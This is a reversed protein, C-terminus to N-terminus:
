YQTRPNGPHDLHPRPDSVATATPRRCRTWPAVESGDVGLQALLRATPVLLRRGIRITPIEGRQAADYATARSIGLVQGAEPVTITPKSLDPQMGCVETHTVPSRDPRPMAPNEADERAKMRRLEEAFRAIVQRDADPVEGAPQDDDTTYWRGVYRPDDNLTPGGFERRQGEIRALFDRHQEDTLLPAPRAAEVRCHPEYPSRPATPPEDREPIEPM